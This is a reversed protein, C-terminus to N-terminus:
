PEGRGGRKLVQAPSSTPELSLAGATGPHPLSFPTPVNKTPRLEEKAKTGEPDEMCGARAAERPPRTGPVLVLPCPNASSWTLHRWIVQPLPGDEGRKVRLDQPQSSPCPVEPGASAQTRPAEMEPPDPTSHHRWPLGLRVPLTKRKKWKRKRTRMTRKRM